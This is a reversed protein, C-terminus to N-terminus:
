VLKNGTLSRPWARASLVKKAISISTLGRRMEAYMYNEPECQFSAFAIKTGSLCPLPPPLSYVLEHLLHHPHAMGRELDSAM